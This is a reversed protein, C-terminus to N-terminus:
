RRTGKNLEVELYKTDGVLFCEVVDYEWLNAVRSGAQVDPIRRPEQHPLKATLVIGNASSQLTVLGHLRQNPCPAGDWFTTIPLELIQQEAFTM